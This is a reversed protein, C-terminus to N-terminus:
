PTHTRNEPAAKLKEQPSALVEKKDKLAEFAANERKADAVRGLNKYATALHFRVNASEPAFKRALELEAASQQWQEQALLVRGMAYHALASGPELLIARKAQVSGEELRSEEVDVLALQVTAAANDPSIKLEQRYEGAAEDYKKEFEYVYGRFYHVNPEDGYHTALRDQFEHVRDLQQASLYVSAMGALWVMERKEPPYDEPVNKMRMWALGMAEALAPDPGHNEVKKGLLYLAEFFHGERTLLLAFHFSAVDILESTGPSGKEVWRRFHEAAHDYDRTEYECLGLFGYAPAVDKGTAIFHTFAQQAEAFRDQDYYISGLWWWGTSWSPRLKVAERYLRIAEPLQDGARAEDAQHSIKDFATPPAQPKPTQTPLLLILLIPAVMM